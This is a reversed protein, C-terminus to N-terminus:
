RWPASITIPGSWGIAGRWAHYRLSVNPQLEGLRERSGFRGQLRQLSLDLGRGEPTIPLEVGLGVASGRAAYNWVAGDDVFEATHKGMRGFAYARLRRAARVSLTPGVDFSSFAYPETASNVGRFDTIALAADLGLRVADPVFAPLRARFGIRIGGGGREGGGGDARSLSMPAFFIGGVMGTPNLTDRPLQAVAIAPALVLAFPLLRVIFAHIM